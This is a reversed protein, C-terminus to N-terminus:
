CLSNRLALWAQSLQIRRLSERDAQADHEITEFSFAVASVHCRRGNSRM